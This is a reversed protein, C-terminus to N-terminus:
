SRSDRRQKEAALHTSHAGHGGVAPKRQVEFSQLVADAAAQSLQRGAAEHKEDTRDVFARKVSKPTLTLAVGIIVTVTLRRAMRLSFKRAFPARAKM